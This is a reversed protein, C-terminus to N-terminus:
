GLMFAIDEQSLSKIAAGDASIVQNVLERKQEQLMLIKEEITDKVIMKYATVSQQQGIRHARDIAQTEAAVNWWPDYIFVTDAATLNLGTGGTKLTMVFAQCAPNGQFEEVLAQRNRTAGTMSVFEIGMKELLLGVEEVAALFNAFILVKHNNAFAEELQSHLMEKKPSEIKGDTKAEPISAIQRLENLAQFIMFHSKELGQSAVQKQILDHYFRRREEYLKAHVGEMEVYVVQEVKAPLDKLVDKKLRRLIFPYIKKRLDEMAEESGGKQIPTLYQSNFREWTGFMAPNLFHFLAYLEGLNNEIPTGSLALRHKSNLLTVAKHALSNVNKIQQSEDLIVYHFEEEVWEEVMNRLIGYTTLVLDHEKAEEWNRNNNYFIYTAIHPNFRKIESEWNFLLSRPMVLLSPKEEGPYSRSLLTITQLTKGLGMDDALCGAIEQDELYMLWKVGDKQYPRLTADVKPLRKKSNKLKNFGEFLKKSREFAEGEMREEMLSEVLPLDFFSVEIEDDKGKKKKRFVRTLKDIYDQNVLVNTGDSLSVYRQKQFQRLVEGLTLTEGEFELVATGELFDIGSSVNMNLKPTYTTIKYDKLKEAGMVHYSALLAPLEDMLFAGALGKDVVFVDGETLIYNGEKKNRKHKKILKEIDSVSQEQADYALPYVALQRTAEKVQVAHDVDYNSLFDSPLFPLAKSVRLYLAEDADIKEFIICPQAQMVEDNRMVSWGEMVMPTNPLYTYFLSLFIGLDTFHTNTVFAGIFPAYEGIHPVKVLANGILLYRETIVVADAQQKWSHKGVKWYSDVQGVEEDLQLQLHMQAEEQEFALAYKPNNELFISIGSKEMLTMLYGHDKLYVRESNREWDLAFMNQEQVRSWQKVFERLVGSFLAYNPTEILKHKTDAISVYAGYDDIGLLLVIEKSHTNTQSSVSQRKFVEFPSKSPM